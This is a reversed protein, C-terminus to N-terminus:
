ASQKASRHLLRKGARFYAKMTAEALSAASAGATSKDMGAREFWDIARAILPLFEATVAYVGALYASKGGAGIEVVPMGASRFFKRLRRLAEPTGEILFRLPSESMVAISGVSAGLRELRCLAAADLSPHFVAVTKGQWHLGSTALEEVISELANAPQIIILQAKSLSEMDRVARGANLGNVARSAAAITNSKVWGLQEHLGPLRSLGGRSVPGACILGVWPQKRM